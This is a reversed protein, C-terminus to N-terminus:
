RTPRTLTFTAEGSPLTLRGDKLSASNYNAFFTKGDTTRLNIEGSTFSTGMVMMTGTLTTASYTGDSTTLTGVLEVSTADICKTSLTRSGCKTTSAPKRTLDLTITGTKGASTYSGTWTGGLASDVDAAGFQWSPESESSSACAVLLCGVLLLTGRMARDHSEAVANAIPRIEAVSTPERDVEEWM